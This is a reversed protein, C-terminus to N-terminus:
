FVQRYPVRQTANRLIRGVSTGMEWLARRSLALTLTLAM